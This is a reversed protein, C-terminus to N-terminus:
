KEDAHMWSPALWGPALEAEVLLQLTQLDTVPGYIRGDVITAPTGRVGSHRASEIWSVTTGALQARCTAFARRDVHLKTAVKDIIKEPDVDRRRSNAETLVAEVWRWGPSADDDFRSDDRDELTTGVKEACLAADALLSLDAAEENAVNFYPAWVVRVQTPYKNRVVRAATKPPGCNPSTPSCLLIITTDANASGYSPWGHVDLPPNALV